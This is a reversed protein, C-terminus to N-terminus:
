SNVPKTIAFMLNYFTIIIPNNHTHQVLISAFYGKNFTDLYIIRSIWQPMSNVDIRVLSAFLVGILVAFRKVASFIGALIAINLMFFDFLGLLWRRKITHFDYCLWYMGMRLIVNIILGIAAELLTWKLHWLVSWTVSWFLISFVLTMVIILLFYIFISNSIIAAPLWTNMRIPVKNVNFEIKGTRADLVRKKYDCLLWIINAFVAIIAITMGFSAGMKIAFVLHHIKTGVGHLHDFYPGFDDKTPEYKFLSFYKELGTKLFIYSSNYVKDYGDDIFDTIGLIVLITKYSLYAMSFILIIISTLLIQPYIFCDPVWVKRYMVDFPTFIRCLKGKFTLDKYSECDKPLAKLQDVPIKKAKEIFMPPTYESLLSNSLSARHAEIRTLSEESDNIKFNTKETMVEALSKRSQQFGPLDSVDADNYFNKIDIGLKKKRNVWYNSPHGNLRQFTYEISIQRKQSYFYSPEKKKIWSDIFYILFSWLLFISVIGAFTYVAIMYALSVGSKYTIIYAYLAIVLFALFLWYGKVLKSAFLLVVFYFATTIATEFYDFYKKIKPIDDKVIIKAENDFISTYVGNASFILAYEGPEDVTLTINSITATLNEIKPRDFKVNSVRKQNEKITQVTQVGRMLTNAIGWIQDFASSVDTTNSFGHVADVVSINARRYNELDEYKILDIKFDEARIVDVETNEEELLQLKVASKITVETALHM